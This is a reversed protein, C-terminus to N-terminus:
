SLDLSAGMLHADSRVWETSLTALSFSVIGELPSFRIAFTAPHQMM